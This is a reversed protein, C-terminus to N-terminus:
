SAVQLCFYVLSYYPVSVRSSDYHTSVQISYNAIKDNIENQDM